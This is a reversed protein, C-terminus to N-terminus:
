KGMVIRKVKKDYSISCKGQLQDIRNCFFIEIYDYIKYEFLFFFLDVPTLTSVHIELDIM